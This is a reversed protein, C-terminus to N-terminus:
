RPQKKHESIGILKNVNASMTELCEYNKIVTEWQVSNAVGSVHRKINRNYEELVFDLGQHADYRGSTSFSQNKNNFHLIEVPILCSSYLNFSDIIIYKTHHRSYWIQRVIKCALDIIDHMHKNQRVGERFMFISELCPLMANCIFHLTEDEGVEVWQSFGEFDCSVHSANINKYVDILELWLSERFKM